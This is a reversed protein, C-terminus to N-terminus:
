GRDRPSPSTYLLCSKNLPAGSKIQTAITDRNGVHQTPVTDSKVIHQTAVTDHSDTTQTAVTDHSDTTQTAVTDRIDITQKEVSNASETDIPHHNRTPPTSAVAINKNNISKSENKLSNYPRAANRDEMYDQISLTKAKTPLATKKRKKQQELIKNLDM